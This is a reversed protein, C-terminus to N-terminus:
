IKLMMPTRPSSDYLTCFAIDVGLPSAMSRYLIKLIGRGLYPHKPLLAQVLCHLVMANSAKNQHLQWYRKFHLPLLKIIRSPDAFGQQLWASNQNCWCLWPTCSHMTPRCTAKSNPTYSRLTKPSEKNIMEWISPFHCARSVLNNGYWFHM